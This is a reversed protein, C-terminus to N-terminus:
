NESHNSSFNITISKITIQTITSVLPRFFLMSQRQWTSNIALCLSSKQESDKQVTLASVFHAQYTSTIRVNSHVLANCHCHLQPHISIHLPALVCTNLNNVVSQWLLWTPFNACAVQVVSGHCTDRTQQALLLYEQMIVHVLFKCTHLLM